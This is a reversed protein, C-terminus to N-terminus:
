SECGIGDNDGDIGHPDDGVVRFDQYPIEGCDLDPPYPPICVDPYNPDCDGGGGTTTSTTTPESTTATATTTVTTSSSTTPTGTYSYTDHTNGSPDTLFGTDGDNNWIASRTSCWYLERDFDDGCGSFVIVTEGPTLTYGDPFTYRNSASEDRIGWGTMDVINNGDNTVLIREGNLNENFETASPPASHPHGM